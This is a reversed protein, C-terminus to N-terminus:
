SSNKLTKPSSLLLATCVRPVKSPADVGGDDHKTPNIVKKHPPARREFCAVLLFHSVLLSSQICVAIRCSIELGWAVQQCCCIGPMDKSCRPRNCPNECIALPSICLWAGDSGTTWLLPYWNNRQIRLPAPGEVRDTGQVGYSPAESMQPAKRSKLVNKPLSPVCQSPSSDTKSYHANLTSGFQQM